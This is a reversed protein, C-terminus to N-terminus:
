DFFMHFRIRKLMRRGNVSQVTHTASNAREPSFAICDRDLLTQVFFRLEESTCPIEASDGVSLSYGTRAGTPPFTMAEVVVGDLLPHLGSLSIEEIARAQPLDSLALAEHIRPTVTLTIGHGEFAQRIAISNRANGAVHDAALM